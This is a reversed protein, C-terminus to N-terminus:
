LDLHKLVVEAIFRQADENPHADIGNIRYDMYGYKKILLQYMSYGGFGKWIPFGLFKSDDLLLSIPNKMFNYEREKRKNLEIETSIKESSNNDEKRFKNYPPLMQFQLFDIGQEKCFCQLLYMMQLTDNQIDKDKPFKTQISKYFEDIFIENHPIDKVLKDREDDMKPIITRWPSDTFDSNDTLIDQRTWETWAVIVYAIDKADHKLVEQIVNSFIKRNGSGCRATNIIDYGEIYAPWMKFNMPNPKAREPMAYDTFSCGGIIIKSSKSMINGKLTKVM